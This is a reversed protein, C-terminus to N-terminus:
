GLLCYYLVPSLGSKTSFTLNVGAATIIVDSAAKITFYQSSAPSYIYMGNDNDVGSHGFCLLYRANASPLIHTGPLGCLM